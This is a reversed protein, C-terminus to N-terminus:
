QHVSKLGTQQLRSIAAPDEQSQLVSELSDEDRILHQFHGQCLAGRNKQFNSGARLVASEGTAVTKLLDEIGRKKPRAVPIRVALSLAPVVVRGIGESGASSLTSLRQLALNPNVKRGLMMKLPIENSYIKIKAALSTELEDQYEMNPKEVAAERHLHKSNHRLTLRKKLPAQAAYYRSLPSLLENKLRRMTHSVVAKRSTLYNMPVLDSPLKMASTLALLDIKPYSVLEVIIALSPISCALHLPTMHSKMFNPINVDIQIPSKNSSQYNKRNFEVAFSVAYKELNSVAEHLPSNGAEDTANPDARTFLGTGMKFLCRLRKPISM